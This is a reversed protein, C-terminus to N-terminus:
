DMYIFNHQPIKHQKLLYHLRELLTKKLITDGGNVDKGFGEFGNLMWGLHKLSAPLGWPADQSGRQCWRPELLGASKITLPHQLFDTGNKFSLILWCDLKSHINVQNRYAKSLTNPSTPSSKSFCCNMVLRISRM